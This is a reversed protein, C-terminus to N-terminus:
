FAAAIQYQQAILAAPLFLVLTSLIGLTQNLLFAPDVHGIQEYLSQLYCQPQTQFDENVEMM